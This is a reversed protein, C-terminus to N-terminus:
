TSKQLTLSAKEETKARREERKGRPALNPLTSFAASPPIYLASSPFFIQNWCNNEANLEAKEERKGRGEERKERGTEERKRLVPPLLFFSNTKLAKQTDDLKGKGGDESKTRGEERAPSFESDNFVSCLASLPPLFSVIATAKLSM